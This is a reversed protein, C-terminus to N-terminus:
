RAAVNVKAYKAAEKAAKKGWSGNVVYDVGSKGALINM